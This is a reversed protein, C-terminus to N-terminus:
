FGKVFDVFHPIIFVDFSLNLDRFGFPFTSHSVDGSGGLLEGLAVVEVSEECDFFNGLVGREYFEDVVFEFQQSALVRCVALGGGNLLCVFGKLFSDHSV